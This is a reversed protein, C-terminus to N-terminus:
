APRRVWRRPRRRVAWRAPRRRPWRVAPTTRSTTARCRPARRCDASRSSTARDRRPSRRIVRDKRIAKPWSRSAASCVWGSWPRPSGAFSAAVRVPRDPRRVPWRPPGASCAPSPPAFPCGTGECPRGIRVPRIPRGDPRASLPAHHRSPLAPGRAAPYDPGWARYRDGSGALQISQQPRDPKESRPPQDPPGPGPPGQHPSTNAAWVATWGAVWGTVRGAAPGGVDPGAGYVARM